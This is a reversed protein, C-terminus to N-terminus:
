EPMKAHAVVYDAQGAPIVHVLLTTPMKISINDPVIRLARSEGASITGLDSPAAELEDGAFSFSVVKDHNQRCLMVGDSLRIEEFHTRNVYHVILSEVSCFGRNPDSAAVVDPHNFIHETHLRPIEFPMLWIAFIVDEPATKRLPIGSAELQAVLRVVDHSLVYGADGWRLRGGPLSMHIAGAGIAYEPWERIGYLDKASLLPEHPSPWNMRGMYLRSSPFTSDLFLQVNFYADDGIRVMHEFSYSEDYDPCSTVIMDWHEQMEKMLESNLRGDSNEVMTSKDAGTEGTRRMTVHGSRMQSKVASGHQRLSSLAPPPSPFSRQQHQVFETPLVIEPEQEVEGGGGVDKLLVHLTHPGTASMKLPRRLQPWQSSLLFFDDYIVEDGNVVSVKLEYRRDQDPQDVELLLLFFVFPRYTVNNLPSHVLLKSSAVSNHLLLLLLLLLFNLLWHSPFQIM